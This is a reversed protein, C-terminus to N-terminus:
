GPSGASVSTTTARAVVLGLDQTERSRQLTTGLMREALRDDLAGLGALM